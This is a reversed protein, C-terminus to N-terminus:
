QWFEHTHNHVGDALCLNCSACTSLWEHDVGFKPLQQSEAFLFRTILRFSSQSRHFFSWRDRLLIDRLELVLLLVTRPIPLSQSLM